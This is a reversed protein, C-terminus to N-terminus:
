EDLPSEMARASAAYEFGHMKLAWQLGVIAGKVGPMLVFALVLTIPIWLAMHVVLSPQWLREIILVLPVVIHAVIFITFYPPADDARHHHLEEGCGRCRDTVKLYSTFLTPAGCAPCRCMLGRLLAQGRRRIAPAAPPPTEHGLTITM